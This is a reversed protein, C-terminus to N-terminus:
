KEKSKLFEKVLEPPLPLEGSFDFEVYMDLIHEQAQFRMLREEDRIINNRFWKDFNLFETDDFEDEKEINDMPEYGWREICIERIEDWDLELDQNTFGDATWYVLNAYEECEYYADHIKNYLDPNIEQLNTDALNLESLNKNDAYAKEMICYLTGIESDNLTIEDSGDAYAGGYHSMGLCIEVHIEYTKM